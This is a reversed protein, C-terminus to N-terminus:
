DQMSDRLARLQKLKGATGMKSSSTIGRVKGAVEEDSAKGGGAPRASNSKGIGLETMVKNYVDNKLEEANSSKPPETAAPKKPMSVIEKQKVKALLRATKRFAMESTDDIDEEKGTVTQDGTLGFEGNVEELIEGTLRAKRQQPTEGQSVPRPAQQQPAPQSATVMMELLKPVQQEQPLAAIQAQLNALAEAQQQQSLAAGFQSVYTMASSLQAAQAATVERLEKLERGQSSLRDRLVKAEDAVPAAGVAPEAPTEAAPPQQTDSAPAAPTMEDVQTM